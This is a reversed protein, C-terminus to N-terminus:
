GRAGVPCRTAGLDCASYRLKATGTGTGAVTLVGGRPGPTMSGAVRGRGRGRPRILAAERTKTIDAAPPQHEEGEPDEPPTRRTNSFVSSRWFRAASKIKQHANTTVSLLYLGVASRCRRGGCFFTLVNFRATKFYFGALQAKSRPM